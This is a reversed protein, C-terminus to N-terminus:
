TGGRAGSTLSNSCGHGSFNFFDGSVLPLAAECSPSPGAKGKKLEGDFGVDMHALSEGVKYHIRVFHPGVEIKVLLWKLIQAQIEKNDTRSFLV